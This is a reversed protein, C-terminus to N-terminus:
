FIKKEILNCINRIKFIKFIIYRFYDIFACIFYILISSGYIKFFLYKSDMSKIFKYFKNIIPIKFYFARAHILTVNFNLPNLFLILKILYKNTIKLNSFFFILSLAQIVITPSFYKLLARNTFKNKIKDNITCEFTIFSIIFYILIFLINFISFSFCNIVFKGLYGGVIYLILLWLSSYGGSIFDFNTNNINLQIITHYVSYILFYCIIIKFFLKKDLLNISITIFPLFLYMLIYANAYWHRVIGLPFFSLIISKFNAISKYYLFLSLIVSYFLYEFWLYIINVFKYKKYGIIGSIFGFTNVPFFSFTHLLYVSKYKPNKPNLKLQATHNNIHLNIINIMSIIKLLDIGYNRSISNKEILQQIKNKSKESFRIFNKKENKQAIIM